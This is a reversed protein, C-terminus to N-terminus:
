IYLEEEEEKMQQHAEDTVIIDEQENYMMTRPEDYVQDINEMGGTSVGYAPNASICSREIIGYAPNASVDTNCNEQEGIVGYAPNTSATLTNLRNDISPVDSQQNIDAKIEDSNFDNGNSTKHLRRKCVLVSVILIVLITVVLLIFVSSISGTLIVSGTSQDPTSEMPTTTLSTANSSSTVLVESTPNGRSVTNQTRTVETPSISGQSRVPHSSENPIPKTPVISTPPISSTNPTTMTLSINVTGTPPLNHENSTSFSPIISTSTFNSAPVTTPTIPVNTVATQIILTSLSSSLTHYATQTTTTTIIVTSKSIVESPSETYSSTIRFVDSSPITSRIVASILPYDNSDIRALVSNPGLRYNFPGNYQQYYMHTGTSNIMLVDGPQVRIEDTVTINYVNSDMASPITDIDISIANTTTNDSHRIMILPHTDTTAVIIWKTIIGHCTFKISPFVRIESVLKLNTVLLRKADFSEDISYCDTNDLIPQLLVKTFTTWSVTAEMRGMSRVRVENEDIEDFRGIQDENSNSTVTYFRVVSEANSPQYLVLRDHRNISLSPSLRYRYLGSTTFNDPFLKITFSKGPDYKKYSSGGKSSSGNVRWVEISPYKNRTSTETRIDVGILVERLTMTDSCDFKNSNDQIIWKSPDGKAINNPISQSIETDGAKSELLSYDMFGESCPSDGAVNLLLLSSSLLLLSPIIDM